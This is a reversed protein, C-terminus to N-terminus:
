LYGSFILGAVLMLLTASLLGPGYSWRASYDWVPLTVVTMIVLLITLFAAM